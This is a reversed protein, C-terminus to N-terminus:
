AKEVEADELSFIRPAPAKLKPEGLKFGDYVEQFITYIPKVLEPRYNYEIPASVSRPPSSAQFDKKAWIVGMRDIPLQPNMADWLMRYMSLQVGYNMVDKVVKSTKVDLLWREGNITAIMDCRGCFPFMYDGNHKKTSWLLQEVSEVLPQQTKWFLVFSQLAKRIQIVTHYTPYYGKGSVYDLPDDTIEIEEGAVIREILNHVATGIESGEGSHQIHRQYSGQSNEIMWKMLFEQLPLGYRLITTVSGFFVGPEVEYVRGYASSPIIRPFESTKLNLSM